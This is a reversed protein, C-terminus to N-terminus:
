DLDIQEDRVGRDLLAPRASTLTHESLCALVDGAPIRDRLELQPLYLRKFDGM